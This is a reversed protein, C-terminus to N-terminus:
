AALGFEIGSFKALPILTRGNASEKLEILGLDALFKVDSHVNKFDKKMAKALALISKPKLSPIVALIQLRPPSLIRGLTEWDAVSIVEEGSKTELRGALASAWRDNTKELAEVVIRVKRLKM